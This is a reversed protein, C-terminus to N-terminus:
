KSEILIKLKELAREKLQGIYQPSVKLKKAIDRLSIGNIFYSEIVTREQKNLGKILDLLEDNLVNTEINDEAVLANELFFEDDTYNIQHSNRIEKRILDKIEGRIYHSAYTNLQSKYKEDFKAKAKYYGLYGASLLEQKELPIHKFEKNVIYEVICFETDYMEKGDKNSMTVGM